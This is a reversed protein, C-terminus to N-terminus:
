NNDTDEYEKEFKNLIDSIEMMYHKIEIDMIMEILEPIYLKKSEHNTQVEQVLSSPSSSTMLAIYKQYIGDEKKETRGKKMMLVYSGDGAYSIALEHDHINQQKNM